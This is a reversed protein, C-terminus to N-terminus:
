RLLDRRRATAGASRVTAPGEPGCVAVPTGSASFEILEDALGVDIM